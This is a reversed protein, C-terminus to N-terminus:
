MQLWHFYYEVYCLLGHQFLNVSQRTVGAQLATVDTMDRGRRVVFGQEGAVEVFGERLQSVDEVACAIHFFSGIALRFLGGVDDGQLERGVPLLLQLRREGLGARLQEVVVDALLPEGQGLALLHRVVGLQALRGGHDDSPQQALPLVDTSIM